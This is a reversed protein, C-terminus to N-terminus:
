EGQQNYVDEITKKSREILFKKKGPKVEFKCLYPLKIYPWWNNYSDAKKMSEKFCKFQGTTIIKKIDKEDRGYKEALQKILYKLSNSHIDM